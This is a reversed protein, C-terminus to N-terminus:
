GWRLLFSAADADREFLLYERGNEYVLKAGWVQLREQVQSLTCVETDEKGFYSMVKYWILTWSTDDNTVPIKTM